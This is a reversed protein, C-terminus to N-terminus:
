LGHQRAYRGAEVRNHVHLKKLISGVHHKITTEDRDVIKSIEANTRNEAILKLIEIEKSTLQSLVNVSERHLQQYKEFALKVKKAISPSFAAGGMYVDNIGRSIADIQETKLLYGDAGAKLADFLMEDTDISTFAIIKISPMKERIIEIAKIGDMVPMRLDMLIVDPNHINAADVAQLGNYTVASIEFEDMRELLFAISDAIDKEDDCIILRTTM